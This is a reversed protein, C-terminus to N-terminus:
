ADRALGDHDTSAAVPARWRRDIAFAPITVHTIPGITLAYLLTGIGVTGGLLYGVGLVCTEIGTRVVRISHGRSALGITLGDRPGPGLGAGIYLGTAVGQALVAGVLLAARAWMATPPHVLGLVINMVAGVLVANLVTGLGPRQPLPLWALLVIFSVIITCTGIQLGTLKALGQHFTNWPDLGLGALVMMATTVGYLLLGAVLQALRRPLRDQPLPAILGRM